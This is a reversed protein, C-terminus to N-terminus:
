LLPFVFIKVSSDKEGDSHFIQKYILSDKMMVVYCILYAFSLILLSFMLILYYRTVLRNSKSLSYVSTIGGFLLGVMGGAWVYIIGAVGLSPLIHM